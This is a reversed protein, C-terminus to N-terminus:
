TNSFCFCVIPDNKSAVRPSNGLRNKFRQKISLSPKPLFFTTIMFKTRPPIHKTIKENAVMVPTALKFRNTMLFRKWINYGRVVSDYLERLLARPNPNLEPIPLIAMVIIGKITTGKALHCRWYNNIIKMPKLKTPASVINIIGSVNFWGRSPSASCPECSLLSSSHDQSEINM